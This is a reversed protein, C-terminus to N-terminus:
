GPMPGSCAQSLSIPRTFNREAVSSSATAAKWNHLLSSPMMGAKSDACAKAFTGSIAPRFDFSWRITTLREPRPSLSRADTSAKRPLLFCHARSDLFTERSQFLLAAGRQHREGHCAIGVVVSRKGDGFSQRLRSGIDDLEAHREGVGHSITRGDLGSAQAREFGALAHGFGQRHHAFEAFPVIFRW